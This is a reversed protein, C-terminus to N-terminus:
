MSKYRMKDLSDSCEQITNKKKKLVPLIKDKTNISIASDIIYYIVKINLLIQFLTNLISKTIINNDCEYSTYDHNKYGSTAMKNKNLLRTMLWNILCVVIKM